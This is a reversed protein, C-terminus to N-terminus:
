DEDDLLEELELLDDLLEDDLELLEDESLEDVCLPQVIRDMAAACSPLLRSLTQINTFSSAPSVLSM